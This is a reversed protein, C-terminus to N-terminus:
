RRLRARHPPSLAFDAELQRFQTRLATQVLHQVDGHTRGSVQISGVEPLALRGEQDVSRRLRQSYSGWLDINLGDGPGLVYDPGVPLDMPLQDSNGTGNEFVDAGFRVPVPLRRGYQAYLDYLSPVDAYPNPSHALVPQDNRLGRTGRSTM